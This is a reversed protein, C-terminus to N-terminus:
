HRRRMVVGYCQHRVELHDSPFERRLVEALRTDIDAQIAPDLTIVFSLARVRGRWGEHTFAVTYPFEWESIIEYGAEEWEEFWDAPLGCRLRKAGAKSGADMSRGGLHPRILSMTEKVVPNDTPAFVADMVALWGCPRLVRDLERLVQGRDFWHWARVATVTDVRGVEAPLHEARAVFYEIRGEVSPQRKKAQAILEPSPDIGIVRACRSALAETAVGSGCGLDLVTFSPELGGADALRDFAEAPFVHNWSAYDAAAKGFDVNPNM